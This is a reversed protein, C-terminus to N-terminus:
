TIEKWEGDSPLIMRTSVHRSASVWSSDYGDMFQQDPAARPDGPARPNPRRRVGDTQKRILGAQHQDFRNSAASRASSFVTQYFRNSPAILPANVACATIFKQSEGVTPPHGYRKRSRDGV